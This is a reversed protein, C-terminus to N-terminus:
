FEMVFAGGVYCSIGTEQLHHNLDDTYVNYLLPSLQGGQRIGISWFFAMSLSNGWQVMFEQERNWFIFLKVVHLPVNGDLLKNALMWHNVRDFAKIADLFCKYVPTDQNRYFDVPKQTCIHGNRDWTSAQYWIPQRCDVPVQRTM